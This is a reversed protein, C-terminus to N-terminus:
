PPSQYIREGPKRLEEPFLDEMVLLHPATALSSMLHDSKSKWFHWSDGATWDRGFTLGHLLRSLTWSLYQQLHNALQPLCEPEVGQHVLLNRARYIRWLHWGLRKSSSSLDKHLCTPDHVLKWAQNVRYLLLPHGSVLNMLARIGTSNEQEALLALIREPAVSENYGLGFPLNTRDIDPNNKLWLHISIALYRVIKEPKRWALIPCVMREVRSIISDGEVLSALCELASWLNVLRLRHDTMSLALNHLDLASRIAPEDRSGTLAAAAKDALQVSNRRPHLNRFSPSRSQVPRAGEAVMIWAEELIAPAATQQYLALLNLGERIDSKFSEVADAERLGSTARRLFVLGGEGTLGPTNAKARTVNLNDCVARIATETREDKARIAVICDFFSPQEPMTGLILDKVSTGEGTLSEILNGTDESSCGKRFAHTALITLLADTDEKRDAATEINLDRFQNRVRNELHDRFGELKLVRGIGVVEAPSTAKNLTELMGFHRPPCATREVGKALRESLEAQVQKLHKNWADHIEQLEGIMTAEAVLGPLNYLKPHFTDPTFEDFLEHWRAVVFAAGPGADDFILKNPCWVAFFIACGTRIHWKLDHAKPTPDSQGFGKSVM